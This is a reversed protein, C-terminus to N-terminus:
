YVQSGLVFMLFNPHDEDLARIKLEGQDNTVEKMLEEMRDADFKEIKGEIHEIAYKTGAELIATAAPKTWTGFKGSGGKEEIKAAIQQNLYDIDSAKDEPIEIGLASPYAHYPSPCCQEPFIAGEALSQKILPEMMSCNTSFFATDKGYKAVQRPVDELIFQQAGPIGADSNPDPADVEVFELGLDDCAKKFEDRRVALLEMSLHRPFSYHIFTKAGMDKAKEVISRGRTVQDLELIIDARPTVVEVDEHPAGLVFLIDDRMEKIQDIAASIGTVSEYMVIAKVDKDSALGVIQSITTEQEKDFKVPYTIHKIVDEGYEAVLKEGTRYGEEGQAVTGTVVGIKYPADGAAEKDAPAEKDGCAVLSFTLVLVLLLSVVRKM